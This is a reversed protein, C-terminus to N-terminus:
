KSHAESILPHKFLTPTQHQTRRIADGIFVAILQAILTRMESEEGIPSMDLFGRGTTDDIPHAMTFHNAGGLLVFHRDGREGSIGNDFTRRLPLAPDDANGYRISSAAIVGDRLGGLMLLPLAPSCALVTQPPWGLMTAAMTHGAYSFGGVVYNFYNPNANHLAMTGGASHGGLVIQDLALAGALAGGANLLKLARYIAHIAPTTPGNGYTNPMVQKIDVGSTLGIVGPLTEGVWNFLVTVIGRKALDTALWGYAEAGLNIGSFFIVVPMKGKSTDAKMIGSMRETESGTAVAPYFVKLHLTDFPATASEVKAASYLSRILM